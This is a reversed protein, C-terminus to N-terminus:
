PIGGYLLRCLSNLNSSLGKTPTGPNSGLVEAESVSTNGNCVYGLLGTNQSQYSM